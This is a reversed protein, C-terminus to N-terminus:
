STARRSTGCGGGLRPRDVTVAVLPEESAPIDTPIPKAEEALEAAIMELVERINRLAEERTNGWTSAGRAELAPSYARWRDEDPEVVNKFNYTTLGVEV